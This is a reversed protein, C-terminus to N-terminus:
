DLLVASLALDDRERERERGGGGDAAGGVGGSAFETADCSTM